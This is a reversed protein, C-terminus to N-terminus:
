LSMQIRLELSQPAVHDFPEFTVALMGSLWDGITTTFGTLPLTWTTQRSNPWAPVASRTRVAIDVFPALVNLL